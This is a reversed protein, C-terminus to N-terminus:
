FNLILRIDIIFDKYEQKNLEYLCKEIYSSANYCPIIITVSPIQM